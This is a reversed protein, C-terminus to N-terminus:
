AEETLTVAPPWNSPISIRSRFLWTNLTRPWMCPPRRSCSGGDLKDGVLHHQANAHGANRHRVCLATEPELAHRRTGVQQLRTGARYAHVAHRLLSRQGAAHSNRYNVAIQIVDHKQRSRSPRDAAGDTHSGCGGPGFGPCCPAPFTGIAEAAKPLTSPRPFPTLKLVGPARLPGSPLNWNRWIACPRSGSLKPMM